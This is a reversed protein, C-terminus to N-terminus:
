PRPRIGSPAESRRPTSRPRRRYAPSDKGPWVKLVADTLPLWGFPKQLRMKLRKLRDLDHRVTELNHGSIMIFAAKPAVKSAKRIFEIGDMRPMSYDTVIVGAAIWALGGLAEEPRTFAHVECELNDAIMQAMLEVYSREDDVIVVSRRSPASKKRALKV